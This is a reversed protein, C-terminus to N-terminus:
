QIEKEFVLFPKNFGYRAHRFCRITAGTNRRTSVSYKSIGNERCWLEFNGILSLTAHQQGEEYYVARVDFTRSTNFPPTSEQAVGFCVPTGEDTYVVAVYGRTHDAALSCMLKQMQAADFVERAANELNLLGEDFFSWLELVQSPLLLREVTM